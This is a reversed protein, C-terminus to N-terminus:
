RRRGPAAGELPAVPLLRAEQPPPFCCSRLFLLGLLASSSQRSLPVSRHSWLTEHGPFSRILDSVLELEHCFLRLVAPLDHPPEEGASREGNSSCGAPPALAGSLEQLLFQRYHFGSHDSVHASVWPRMSSLEDLFVQLFPSPSRPFGVPLVVAYGSVGGM